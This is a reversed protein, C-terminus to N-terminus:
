AYVKLFLKYYMSGYEAAFDRLVSIEFLNKNRYELLRRKPQRRQIRRRIPTDLLWNHSCKNRIRYLERLRDHIAKNILGTGEALDLKREFNLAGAGELLQDVARALKPKKGGAANRDIPKCRLVYAKLWVNLLDEIALQLELVVGRIAHNRQQQLLFRQNYPDNDHALYITSEIAKIEESLKRIQRQLAQEKAPPVKNM